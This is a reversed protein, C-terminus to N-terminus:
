HLKEPNVKMLFHLRNGTYIANKMHGLLIIVGILIDKYGELLLNHFYIRKMLIAM